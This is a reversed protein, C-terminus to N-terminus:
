NVFTLWGHRDASAGYQIDMVAQRLALAQQQSALTIDKGAIVMSTVPSIVAATGTLAAEAGNALWQQLEAVTFDREQVEMGRDRAVQLVSDRTVGHLFESTLRKTILTNGSIVIFNSAGTEQVDGGPCFLVQNAGLEAKAKAQWHLASAYNGGTKISGMHPACRAHETEVLLKMPSGAVFYDGVPSALVYLLAQESPTGAKGVNAETGILTPRLYLSGPREPTDDVARKVLEVIADHLLTSDPVPLHLARASAMMRAIHRDLRFIGIRNDAHRFAKLGEFITSGYHLCHAAPHLTLQNSAQWVPASWAKGDYTMVPMQAHFESGFVTPIARAM